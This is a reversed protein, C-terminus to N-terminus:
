RGPPWRASIRRDQWIWSGRERRWSSIRGRQHPRRPLPRVIPDARSAQSRSYKRLGLCSRAEMSGDPIVLDTEYAVEPCSEIRVM